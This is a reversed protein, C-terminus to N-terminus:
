LSLLLTLICIKAEIGNLHQCLTLVAVDVQRVGLLSVKQNDDLAELLFFYGDLEHNVLEFDLQVASVGMNQWGIPTEKALGFDVQDHLSTQAVEIMLDLTRAVEGLALSGCIDMLHEFAQSIQVEIANNMPVDLWFIDDETSSNGFNSVKSPRDNGGIFALSITSRKVVHRWLNGFTGLVVVLNIAPANTYQGIFHQCTERGEFEAFALIFSRSQVIM